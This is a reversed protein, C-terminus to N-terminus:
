KSGNSNLLEKIKNDFDKDKIRHFSISATIMTFNFINHNIYKTLYLLSVLKLRLINPSIDWIKEAFEVAEKKIKIHEQPCDKLISDKLLILHEKEVYKSITELFNPIKEIIYKFGYEDKLTTILEKTEKSM